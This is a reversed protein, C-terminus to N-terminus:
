WYYLGHSKCWLFSIAQDDKTMARTHSSSCHATGEWGTWHQNKKLRIVVAWCTDASTEWPLECPVILYLWRDNRGMVEVMLRLEHARWGLYGNLQLMRHVWLWHNSVNECKTLFGGRLGWRGEPCLHKHAREGAMALTVDKTQSLLGELIDARRWPGWPFPSHRPDLAGDHM